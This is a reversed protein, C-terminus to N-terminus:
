QHRALACLASFAGNSRTRGQSVVQKPENWISIRLPCQAAIVHARAQWHPGKRRREDSVYPGSRVLARAIQRKTGQRALRASESNSGIQHRQAHYATGATPVAAAASASKSDAVDSDSHAGAGASNRKEHTEAVTSPARRGFSGKDLRM